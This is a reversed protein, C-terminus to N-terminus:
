VTEMIREDIMDLIKSDVNIDFKRAFLKDSKSLAEFDGVRFITPREPKNWDVYTLNKNAINSIIEDTLSNMLLTPFFIEDCCYTYKHFNLYDAHDDVFALAHSAVARNFGFLFEGAYYEKIYSPSKRKPLFVNLYKLCRNVIKITMRNKLNHYHYHRIRNLGGDPGWCGDPLKMCQMFIKDTNKSIFDEIFRVSKIPYDQGSMVYLYDYHESSSLAERIGNLVAKVSGISGWHSNEREVFTINNSSSLLTKRFMSIDVRKDIHVYFASHESQLANTLRFLQQPYKYALILYAIKM